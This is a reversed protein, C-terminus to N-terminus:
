RTVVFQSESVLIVVRVLVGLQIGASGRCTPLKAKAIQNHPISKRIGSHGSEGVSRGESSGQSSPDKRTIDRVEHLM